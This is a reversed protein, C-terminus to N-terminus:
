WRVEYSHTGEKIEIENDAFKRYKKGDIFVKSIKGFGISDLNIIGEGTVEKLKLTKNKLDMSVLDTDWIPIDDVLGLVNPEQNFEWNIKVDGEIQISNYLLYSPLYTIQSMWHSKSYNEELGYPEITEIKDIYGIPIEEGNSKHRELFTEILEDSINRYEDNGTVNSLMNYGLPFQIVAYGLQSDSNVNLYNGANDLAHPVMSNKIGFRNILINDANEICKDLIEKNDILKSAEILTATFLGHMTEIMPTSSTEGKTTNLYRFAGGNISEDWIGDVLAPTYVKLIDMIKDDETLNYALMLTRIYVGGMDDYRFDNYPYLRSGAQDYLVDWSEPILNTESDRREWISNLIDLAKEKYQIKEPLFKYAILLAQASKLTYNSFQSEYGYDKDNIPEGTISNVKAWVLNNDENIFNNIIGDALREMLDIYEDDVMAIYSIMYLVSAQDVATSINDSKYFNVVGIDSTNESVYEAGEKAYKLYKEDKTAMFISIFKLSNIYYETETRKGIMVDNKIEELGAISYDVAKVGNLYSISEEEESFSAKTYSLCGNFMIISIMVLMIIVIVRKNIVRM